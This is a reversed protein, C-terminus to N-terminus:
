EGEQCLVWQEIIQLMVLNTIEGSAWRDIYILLDEDTLPCSFVQETVVISDVGVIPITVNEGDESRVLVNGEFDYTTGPEAGAPIDLLYSIRRTGVREADRLVWKLERRGDPIVHNVDPSGFSFPLANDYLERLIVGTFDALPIINL